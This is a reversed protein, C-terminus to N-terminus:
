GCIRPFEISLIRYRQTGVPTEVEIEDEARKGMLGKGVPSDPTVVIAEGDDHGGVGIQFCVEEMTGLDAAIVTAGVSVQDTETLDIVEVRSIMKELQAIRGELTSHARKAEDLEANESFDGFSMAHALDERIQRRETTKLTELEACLREFNEPTMPILGSM